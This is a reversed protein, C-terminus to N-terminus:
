RTYDEVLSYFNPEKDQLYARAYGQWDTRRQRALGEEALRVLRGVPLSDHSCGNREHQAKEAQEALAVFLWIVHQQLTSSFPVSALTEILSSCVDALFQGRIEDARQPNAEIFGETSEELIKDLPIDNLGIKQQRIENDIRLIIEATTKFHKEDKGKLTIMAEVLGCHGWKKDGEGYSYQVFGHRPNFIDTIAKEVAAQELERFDKEKSDQLNAVKKKFRYCLTRYRGYAWDSVPSKQSEIRLDRVQQLLLLGHVNM